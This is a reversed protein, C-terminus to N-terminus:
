GRWVLFIIYSVYLILLAGGEIRGLINKRGVYILLLLLITVSFLLLMDVNLIPNYSIPRIMSGLGLVWLLNFVNSGIVNGIAIDTQKRYAAVASAALEPLSTGVAVITLGVLAQSLGFWTAIEIAGSVIWRGGLFLGILGGIIMVISLTINHEEIEDPSISEILGEKNKNSSFTYYIFITFFFILILGDIRSLINLNVKSLLFDNVLIGVLIISFLSFPIQRHVISKKVMLPYILAAVGLILLTNSINSGIINGFAIDANGKFSAMASVILEPASTGFAVITLGIVLNSIHFKKAIAASGDVLITAGQVLFVFGLIFLVIDIIM